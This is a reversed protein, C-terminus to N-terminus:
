NPKSPTLQIEPTGTKRVLFSASVPEADGLRIKVAYPGEITLLAPGMVVPLWITRGPEGDYNLEGGAELLM